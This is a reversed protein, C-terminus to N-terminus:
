RGIASKNWVGFEGGLYPTLLNLLEQENIRINRGIRYAELRGQVIANRISNPHLKTLQAAEKITLLNVNSQSDM